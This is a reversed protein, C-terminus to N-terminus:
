RVSRSGGGGFIGGAVRNGRLVNADCYRVGILRVFGVMRQM